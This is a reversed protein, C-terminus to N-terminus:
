VKLVQSYTIMGNLVATLEDAIQISRKRMVLHRMRSGKLQINMERMRGEIAYRNQNRSTWGVVARLEYFQWLVV